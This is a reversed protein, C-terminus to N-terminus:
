KKKDWFRVFIRFSIQCFKSRRSKRFQYSIKQPVWLLDLFAKFQKLQDFSTWLFNRGRKKKPVLARSPGPGSEPGPGLNITRCRKPASAPGSCQARCSAFSFLCPKKSFNYSQDSLSCFIWFDRNENKKM